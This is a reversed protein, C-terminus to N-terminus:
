DYYGLEKFIESLLKYRLVPVNGINFYDNHSRCSTKLNLLHHIISGVQERTLLTGFMDLAYQAIMQKNAKTQAIRHAMELNDYGMIGCKPHQCQYGDRAYVILRTEEITISKNM